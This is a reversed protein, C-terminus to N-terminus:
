DNNINEAFRKDGCHVDCVKVDYRSFPTCSVNTTSLHYKAENECGLVYCKVM